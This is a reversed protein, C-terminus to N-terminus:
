KKIETKRVKGARVEICLFTKGNKDKEVWVDGFM